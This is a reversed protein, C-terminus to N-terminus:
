RALLAVGSWIGAILVSCALAPRLAAFYRGVSLGFLRRLHFLSLAVWALASLLCALAAGAPGMRHVLPVIGALLVVLRLASVQRSLAPRGIAFFTTVLGWGLTRVAVNACFLTFAGAAAVYASGYMLRLLLPAACGMLTLAPLFLLALVKMTRLLNHLLREPENQM